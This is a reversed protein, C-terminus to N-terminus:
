FIETANYEEELYQDIVTSLEPAKAPKLSGWMLLRDFVDYSADNDLDLKYDFACQSITEDSEASRVRYEVESMAEITLEM